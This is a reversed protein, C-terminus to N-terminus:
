VWALWSCEAAVVDPLAWTGLSPRRASSASGLAPVAAVSVTITSPVACRPQPNSAPQPPIRRTATQTRTAPCVSTLNTQRRASLHRATLAAAPRPPPTHTPYRSKRPSKNNKYAFSNHQQARPNTVFSASAAISTATQSALTHNARQNCQLTNQAARSYRTHKISRRAVKKRKKRKENETRKTPLIAM